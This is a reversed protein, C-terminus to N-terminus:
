SLTRSKGVYLSSQMGVLVLAATTSDCSVFETLTRLVHLGVERDMSTSVLLERGDRLRVSSVNFVIRSHNQGEAASGFLAWRQKGAKALDWM